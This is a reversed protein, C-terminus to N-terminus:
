TRPIPYVNLLEILKDRDILEVGNAEALDIAGQTFHSNTAVAALDYKTLTIKTPWTKWTMTYPTLYKYFKPAIRNRIEQMSPQPDASHGSIFANVRENFYKKYLKYCLYILGISLFVENSLCLAIVFFWILFKKM